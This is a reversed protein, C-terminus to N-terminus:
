PNESINPVQQSAFGVLLSRYDKSMLYEVMHSGKRTVNILRQIAVVLSIVRFYVYIYTHTHTHTHTHNM